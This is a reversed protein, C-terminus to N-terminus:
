LAPRDEATDADRVGTQFAEWLSREVQTGRDRQAVQAAQREAREEDSERYDIVTARGSPDTKTVVPKM